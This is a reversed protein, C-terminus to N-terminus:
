LPLGRRGPGGGATGKDTGGEESPKGQPWDGKPGGFVKEKM